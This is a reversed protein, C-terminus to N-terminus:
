GAGIQPRPCPLDALEEVPERGVGRVCVDRRGRGAERHEADIRRSLNRPNPLHALAAACRRRRARSTLRAAQRRSSGSQVTLAARRGRCRRPRAGESARRRPRCRARARRRDRRGSRGTRAAVAAVVVRRVVELQAVEARLREPPGEIREDGARLSIVSHPSASREGTGCALVVAATGTARGLCRTRVRARMSGIVDLVALVDALPGGDSNVILEVEDPSQGDLAMLEACVRTAGEADIADAWCSAAGRGCSSSPM